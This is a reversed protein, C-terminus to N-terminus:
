KIWVKVIYDTVQQVGLIIFIGVIVSLFVILRQEKIYNMDKWIIESKLMEFLYFIRQCIIVSLIAVVFLYLM